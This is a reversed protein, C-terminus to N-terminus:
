RGKASRRRTIAFTIAALAATAALGVKLITQPRRLLATTTTTLSEQAAVVHKRDELRRGLDLLSQDDLLSELATLLTADESTLHARIHTALAHLKPQFTTSAPPTTALEDALTTILRHQETGRTLPTRDPLPYAPYLLSEEEDVHHRLATNLRGLLATREEADDHDTRECRQLLAELRHHDQRVLGLADMTPHNVPAAGAL